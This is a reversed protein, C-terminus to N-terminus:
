SEKQEKVKHVIFIVEKGDIKRSASYIGDPILHRKKLRQIAVKIASYSRGLDERTGSIASGEPINNLSEAMEAGMQTRERPVSDASILRIPKGLFTVKQERRGAASM